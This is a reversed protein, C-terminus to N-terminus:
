DDCLVSFGTILYTNEKKAILERRKKEAQDRTDYGSALCLGLYKFGSKGKVFAKYFEEFQLEVMRDSQYDCSVRVVNSVYERQEGGTYSNTMHGYVVYYQTKAVANQCVGGVMLLALAGIFLMKKM